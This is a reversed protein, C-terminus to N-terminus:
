GVAPEATVDGSAPGPEAATALDGAVVVANRGTRKARYLAADARRYLSAADEHPLRNAVGISVTLRVSAGGLNLTLAEVKQRLREATATADDPGTDPLLIGFEEGGLRGLLDDGKLSAQALGAIQRIAEDGGAHGHADNVRKFHDIDVMLCALPAAAAAGAAMAQAARESFARRNLVGTLPDTHALLRLEAELSKRTTIDYAWFLMVPEGDVSLERASVLSWGSATPAPGGADRLQVEYDELSEALAFRRWFEAAAAADVFISQFCTARARAGSEGEGASEDAPQFQRQFRRNAFLLQQDSRRLLAVAIPSADLIAHLQREREHLQVTRRLVRDELTLNLEALSEALLNSRRLQRWLVAVLMVVGFTLAVTAMLLWRFRELFLLRDRARLEAFSRNTDIAMELVRLRLGSVADVLALARAQSAADGDQLAAVVPTWRNIGEELDHLVASAGPVSEVATMERAPALRSALIDLRLSVGAADLRGASFAWLAVIWQEYQAQLQDVHFSSNHLSPEALARIPKFVHWMATGAAAGLLAVCFALAMVLGRPRTLRRM